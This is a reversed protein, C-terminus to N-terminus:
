WYKHNKINQLKPLFQVDEPRYFAQDILNMNNDILIYRPISQLEIFKLFTKTAESTDDLWYSINQNLAKTKNKWKTKDKIKDLSISIVKLNKPLKLKAMTNVGQICPACWTAWFDILYYPSPHQNIIKKFSSMKELTNFFTLEELTKKFQMNNLPSIEKDIAVTNNKYLVTNRLWQKAKLFKNEGKNDKFRLFGFIGISVFNIYSESFHKTNLKNYEFTNIRNTVYGNLLEFLVDSAIYNDKKLEKKLFNDIRPNLSDILQLRSFFYLDNLRTKLTEKTRFKKNYFQYLTDLENKLISKDTKLTLIKEKISDYHKSISDINLKHKEFNYSTSNFELNIFHEKSVLYNQNIRKIGNNQLPIYSTYYLVMAAHDRYISKQVVKSGDNTNTFELPYSYLFKDPINLLTLDQKAFNVAIKISDNAKHLYLNSTDDKKQCAFILTFIFLLLGYPKNSFFIIKNFFKM